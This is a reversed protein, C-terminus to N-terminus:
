RHVGPGLDDLSRDGPRLVAVGRRSIRDGRMPFPFFRADLLVLARVADAIETSRVPTREDAIERRLVIAGIDRARMKKKTLLERREAEDREATARQAELESAVAADLLAGESDVDFLQEFEPVTGLASLVPAAAAPIGYRQLIAAATFAHLIRLSCLAEIPNKVLKTRQTFDTVAKIEGSARAMRRALQEDDLSPPASPRKRPLADVIASLVRAPAIKLDPRPEIPRLSVRRLKPMSGPPLCVIAERPISSTGFAAVLDEDAGEITVAVLFPALPPM